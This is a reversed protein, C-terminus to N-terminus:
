ACIKTACLFHRQENEQEILAQQHWLRELEGTMFQIQERIQLIEEESSQQHIRQTLKDILSSKELMQAELQLVREDKQEENLNYAYNIEKEKEELWKQERLEQKDKFDQGLYFHTYFGKPTQWNNKRIIKSLIDNRHKFDRVTPLYFETNILAFLYEAAVQEPASFYKKHEFTLNFFTGLILKKVEESIEEKIKSNFFLQIDEFQKILKDQTPKDVSHMLQKLKINNNFSSYLDRIYLGRMKLSDIGKNNNLFSCIPKNNTGDSPINAPSANSDNHIKKNQLLPEKEPLVQNPNILVLLKETVHIYCGKKVEFSGNDTTRSYLAQRREIFGEEDLEKLYSQLTSLGIGTDEVIETQPKMFWKQDSNKLRYTSTQWGLLIYDMLQAKRVSPIVKILNKFRSHFISCLNGM